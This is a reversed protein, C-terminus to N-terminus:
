KATKHKKEKEFDLFPLLKTFLGIIPGTGITCIVSGVGVAIFLDGALALTLLATFITVIIDFILKAKSMPWGFKKGLALALGDAPAVLINAGVMMRIGLSFIVMGAILFVVRFWMDNIGFDLLKCFIDLILGVVYAMPFQLALQLSIKRTIALQLLMCLVHFISTCQGYTLPSLVSAAYPIMSGPAVGINARVSMAVGFSMVLVGIVYTSIRKVFAAKKDKDM